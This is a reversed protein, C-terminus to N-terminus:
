EHQVHMSEDMPKHPIDIQGSIPQKTMVPGSKFVNQQTYTQKHSPMYEPDNSIALYFFLMFIFSLICAIILSKWGWGSQEPSLKETFTTM